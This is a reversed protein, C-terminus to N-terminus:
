RIKKGYTKKVKIKNNYAHNYLHKTYYYNYSTIYIFSDIYIVHYM